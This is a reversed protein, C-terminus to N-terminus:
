RWDVATSDHITGYSRGGRAFNQSIGIALTELPKLTVAVAVDVSRCSRKLSTTPPSWTRVSSPASTVNEVSAVGSWCARGSAITNGAVASSTAPTSRSALSSRTGTTGRPEPVFRLPPVIGCRPPMTSTSTRIFLSLSTLPASSTATQSGPTFVISSACAAAACPRSKGGSGPLWAIEVSPPFTASHEPPRRASFYPIM